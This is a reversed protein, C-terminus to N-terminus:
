RKNIKEFKELLENHYSVFLKNGMFSIEKEDESGNLWSPTKIFKIFIHHAWDSYVVNLNIDIFSEELDNYDENSPNFPFDLLNETLELYEFEFIAKLLIEFDKLNAKIQEFVLSPVVETTANM